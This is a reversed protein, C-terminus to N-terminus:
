RYERPSPGPISLGSEVPEGLDMNKLYNKIEDKYSIFPDLMLFPEENRSLRFGIRDIIHTQDGM